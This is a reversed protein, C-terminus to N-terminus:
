KPNDGGEPRTCYGSDRCTSRCITRQILIPNPVASVRAFYQCNPKVCCLCMGFLQAVAGTLLVSRDCVVCEIVVGASKCFLNWITQWPIHASSPAAPLVLSFQASSHFPPFPPFASPGPPLLRSSCHPLPSPPLASPPLLSAGGELGMWVEKVM